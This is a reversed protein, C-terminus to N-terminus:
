KSDSLMHRAAIIADTIRSPVLPYSGDRLAQRIEAVRESDVPTTGASVKVGTQVSVGQDVAGTAREATGSAPAKDSLERAAGRLPGVGSLKSVDYLSM